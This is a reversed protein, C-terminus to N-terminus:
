SRDRSVIRLARRILLNAELPPGHRTALSKAGAILPLRQAGRFREAHSRAAVVRNAAALRSRPLLRGARGRGPNTAAFRAESPSRRESLIPFSPFPRPRLIVAAIMGKEIPGPVDRNAACLGGCTLGELRDQLRVRPESQVTYLM